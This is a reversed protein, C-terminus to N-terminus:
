LVAMFGDTLWDIFINLRRNIGINLDFLSLLFAPIDLGAIGYILTGEEVPEIYLLTTFKEAGMVPFIAYWIPRNNTLNCILGRSTFSIDGRFYTNGFDSDELLIYLTESAPLATAFPPDPIPTNRSGDILRTSRKFLPYIRGRNGVTYNTLRQIGGVTNYIDLLTLPRSIYPIVVLAEVYQTPNKERAMNLLNIGSNISPIIVPTENRLFYNKYGRKSFIYDKQSENLYPFLEYVSRLPSAQLAATSVILFLLLSFLVTKSLKM